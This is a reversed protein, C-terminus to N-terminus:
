GLQRPSNVRGSMMAAIQASVDWLRKALGTDTFVPNARSTQCNSWYEGTIGATLPSAALLVATAARQAPSRDFYRLLSHMLREGAHKASNRNGSHFANVAVGRAKLQRSLEQAFLAAALKTQGRFAQSDYIRENNLDDFMGNEVPTEEIGADNSGIVIRGTGPRVLEALRNVLVFQAIHDAFCQLELSDVIVADLPSSLGRLADMAADVSPPDTPDCGLPISARGIARCAAAAEDLSGAVGVIMAGNASLAKMTEIGVPSNCGTVLVRKRSLDIGALVQDATSRSGFPIPPAM